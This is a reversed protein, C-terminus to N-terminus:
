QKVIKKGNLIYVGKPLNKVQADTGVKRGSLDFVFGRLSAPVGAEQESKSNIIESIGTTSGDSVGISISYLAPASVSSGNDAVNLFLRFPNLTGTKQPGFTGNANFTYLGSQEAANVSQYSSTYSISFNDNETMLGSVGDWDIVTMSTTAPKASQTWTVAASNKLNIEKNNDALKVLMPTGAAIVANAAQKKLMLIFHEKGDSQNATLHIMQNMPVYVNEFQGNTQSLNVSFPLCLTAYEGETDVTRQYSLNGAPYYTTEVAENDTLTASAFATKLKLESIQITGNSATTGATIEYKFYQYASSPTCTYSYTTANVDKLKTDNTVQDIKTWSNQDNSGYLIWSKPNRNPSVAADSGTTISYGEVKCPLSAKFIVYPHSSSTISTYTFCWKTNTNNDFLNSAVENVTNNKIGEPNASVLSFTVNDAAKMLGPCFILFSLLALTSALVHSSKTKGGWLNFTFLKNM